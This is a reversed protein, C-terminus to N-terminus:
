LRETATGKGEEFYRGQEANYVVPFNGYNWIERCRGDTELGMRETIRDIPFGFLILIRGRDTLWGPRGESLFTKDAEDIRHFYEIKFENEETDPDPDRRKWFEDIFEPKASDPMELFVKREERTIIYRTKSLFDSNVPGLSRELRYLQCASTGSAILVLAGVARRWRRKKM